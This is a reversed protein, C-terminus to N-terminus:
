MVQIFCACEPLRRGKNELYDACGATLLAGARAAVAKSCETVSHTLRGDTWNVLGDASHDALEGLSVTVELSDGLQVHLAQFPSLLALFFCGKKHCQTGPFTVAYSNKFYHKKIVHLAQFPSLLALFFCGKKHCQTGPFTVAYSSKFYHKKIVHLAQFPSLLALFFCGKKHCQTGPFTVAYSSKFYHKKIVHLAQFPLPM